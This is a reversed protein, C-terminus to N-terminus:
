LELDFGGESLDRQDSAFKFTYGYNEAPEKGDTYRIHCSEPHYHSTEYEALRAGEEVSRVNNVVGKVESESCRPSCSATGM